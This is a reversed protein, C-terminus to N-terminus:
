IQPMKILTKTEVKEGAMKFVLAFHRQVNTGLSWERANCQGRVKVFFMVTLDTVFSHKELM